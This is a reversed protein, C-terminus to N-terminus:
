DQHRVFITQDRFSFYRLKNYKVCNIIGTIYGIRQGAHNGSTHIIWTFSLILYGSQTAAVNNGAKPDQM